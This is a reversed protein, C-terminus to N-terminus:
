KNNNKVKDVHEILENIRNNNFKDDYTVVELIPREAVAGVINYNQISFQIDKMASKCAENYEYCCNKYKKDSGCFCKENRKINLNFKCSEFLKFKREEIKTYFVEKKSVAYSKKNGKFSMITTVPGHFVFHELATELIKKDKSVANQYSNNIIVDNVRQLEENDLKNVRNEIINDSMYGNFLVAYFSSSLPLFIATGKMGMNRNTSNVFRNKFTLAATSVYQDSLVFKDDSMIIAFKYFKRISDALKMIYEVDMINFMMLEVRQNEPTDANQSFEHMLAGSRYYFILFVHIQEFILEKVKTIENENNEVKYVADVIERIKPIFEGELKSFLNEIANQEFYPHEYLFRTSMSNRISTEYTKKSDVLAEYIRNSNISFLDLLGQSIYHQNRTIGM